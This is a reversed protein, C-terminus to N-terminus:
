KWRFAACGASRLLFHSETSVHRPPIAKILDTEHRLLFFLLERYPGDKKTDNFEKATVRMQLFIALACSSGCHRGLRDRWWRELCFQELAVCFFLAIMSHIVNLLADEQAERRREAVHYAATNGMLANAHRKRHEAQLHM